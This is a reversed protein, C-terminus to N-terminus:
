ARRKDTFRGKNKVMEASKKLWLSWSSEHKISAALFPNKGSGRRLNAWKELISWVIKSM